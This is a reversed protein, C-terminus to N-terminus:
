QRADAAEDVAPNGCHDRMALTLCRKDGQAMEAVPVELVDAEAATLDAVRQGLPGLLSRSHLIEPSGSPIRGKAFWGLNARAQNETERNL